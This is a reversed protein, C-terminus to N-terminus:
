AWFVGTSYDYYSYLYLNQPNGVPTLISGLNAALTQLIVVRMLFNKKEGAASISIAFPVFTLLAVDNTIFMSSFFTLGVLVAGLPRM